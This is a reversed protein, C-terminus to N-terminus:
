TKSGKALNDKAWLPQLNSYHFCKELEKEDSLNFSSVPIIHDIHWGYFGYNEWNMGELWLSELYDKLFKGDCGLLKTTRGQKGLILKIRKRQRSVIKIHPQAKYAKTKEKNKAKYDRVRQKYLEPDSHYKVSSKTLFEERNEQFRKKNYEKFCTKCWWCYGRKIKSNKSFNEPLYYHNCKICNLM